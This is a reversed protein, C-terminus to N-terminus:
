FLEDTLAIDIAQDETLNPDEVMLERVREEATFTVGLEKRADRISQRNFKDFEAIRENLQDFGILAKDAGLIERAQRVDNDSLRDGEQIQKALKFVLAGNIFKLANQNRDFLNIGQVRRMISNERLDMGSVDNIVRGVFSGVAGGQQLIAQTTRNVDGILGVNEPTALEFFRQTLRGTAIGSSVRQQLRTINTKTPEGVKVTVGAGTKRLVDVKDQLVATRRELNRRASPTATEPLERLKKEAIELRNLTKTLTTAEPKEEETRKIGRIERKEQPTLDKFPKGKEDLAIENLSKALETPAPFELETARKEAAKNAAVVRERLNKPLASFDEVDIYKSLKRRGFVSERIKRARTDEPIPTPAEVQPAVAPPQVALQAPATPVMPEAESTIPAEKGGGFLGSLLGGGKVDGLFGREPAEFKSELLETLRKTRAPTRGETEQIKSLATIEALRNKNFAEEAKIDTEKGQQQFQLVM